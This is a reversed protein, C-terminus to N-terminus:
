NDALTAEAREWMQLYAEAANMLLSMSDTSNDKQDEQRFAEIWEAFLGYHALGESPYDFTRDGTKPRTFTVNGDISTFPYQIQVEEYAGTQSTVGQIDTSAPVGPYLGHATIEQAYLNIDELTQDPEGLRTSFMGKLAFIRAREEATNNLWLHSSVFGPYQRQELIAMVNQYARYSLHDVEIIMGKDALRNVLYEGIPHLARTNCAPNAIPDQFTDYTPLEGLKDVFAIQIIGALAPVAEGVVAFNEDFFTRMDTLGDPDEGEVIDRERFAYVNEPCSEVDYFHGDIREPFTNPNLLDVFLDNISSTSIRSALHMWAGSIGYGPRTGGFANDFRHLPFISRIGMDYVADIQQDIYAPTCDTNSERCNFLDGHEIGLVIAMKNDAIVQRAQTPTTVVRFWGKGPGGEQADIYDQMAYIYDTQLKVADVGTCGGEAKGLNVASLIQCFAPNGTVNTVVLKLGSLYARQLWRYYTTVHTNTDSNPWYSFSPYGDTLHITPSNDDSDNSAQGELFDRSGEEGHLEECSGLAHEIGFPHFTDGSMAIGAMSKPFGIHAHLDAFGVVPQSPDRPTFFAASVEADLNAEPFAQCRGSPQEVWQIAVQNPDLQPQEPNDTVPTDIAVSTTEGNAIFRMGTTKTTLTLERAITEGDRIVDLYNVHWLAQESPETQRAVQNDSVSLYRGDRDYLLFEGLASPKFFFAQANQAQPSSFTYGEEGKTTLFAGNGRSRLAYCGQALEYAPAALQLTAPAETNSSGGSSCGTLLYPALLAILLIFLKCSIPRSRSVM